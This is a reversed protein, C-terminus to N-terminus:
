ASRLEPTVLFYRTFTLQYNTPRKKHIELRKTAIGFWSHGSPRSCIRRLSACSSAFVSANGGLVSPPTAYARGMPSSPAYCEVFLRKAEFPLPLHIVERQESDEVSSERREVKKEHIKLRKTAM